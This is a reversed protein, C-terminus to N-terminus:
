KMVVLTALLNISNQNICRNINQDYIILMIHLILYMDVHMNIMCHLIKAKNGNEQTSLSTGKRLFSKLIKFYNSIYKLFAQKSIPKM